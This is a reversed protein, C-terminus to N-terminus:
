KGANKYALGTRRRDHQTNNSSVKNFQANDTHVMNVIDVGDEPEMRIRVATQDDRFAESTSDSLTERMTHLSKLHVQLLSHLRHLLDDAPADPVGAQDALFDTSSPLPEHLSQEAAGAHSSGAGGSSRSPLAPGGSCVCVFLLV